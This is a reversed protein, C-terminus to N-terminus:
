RMSRHLKAMALNQNATQEYTRALTECHRAMPEHVEPGSRPSTNRRYAAAYRLHRTAAAADLTAQREFQQAIYEHDERGSANVIRQEISETVAPGSSACGGLAIAAVFAAIGMTALTRRKM